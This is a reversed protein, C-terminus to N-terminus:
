QKIHFAPPSRGLRGKTASSHSPDRFFTAIRLPIHWIAPEKPHKFNGSHCGAITCSKEKDIANRCIRVSVFFPRTWQVWLSPLIENMTTYTHGRQRICSERTCYAGSQDLRLKKATVKEELSRLSSADHVRTRISLRIGRTRQVM